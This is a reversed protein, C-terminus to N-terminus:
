AAQLWRQAWMSFYECAEAWENSKDALSAAKMEEAHEQLKELTERAGCREADGDPARRNWNRGACERTNDDEDASACPQVVCKENFCGVAEHGFRVFRKPKEGCFPCKAIEPMPKRPTM